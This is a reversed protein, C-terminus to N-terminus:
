INKCLPPGLYYYVQGKKYTRIHKAGLNEGRPSANFRESIASTEARKVM